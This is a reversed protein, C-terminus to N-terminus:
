WFCQMSIHTNRVVNLLGSLCDRSQHTDHDLIKPPMRRGADLESKFKRMRQFLCFLSFHFTMVTKSIVADTTTLFLSATVIMHNIRVTEATDATEEGETYESGPTFAEFDSLASEM